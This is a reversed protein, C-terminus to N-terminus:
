RGQGHRQEGQRPRSPQPRHPPTQGAPRSADPRSKGRNRELATRVLDRALVDAQRTVKAAFQPDRLNKALRRRSAEDLKVPTYPVNIKSAIREAAVYAAGRAQKAPVGDAVLKAVAAGYLAKGNLQWPEIKAKQARQESINLTGSQVSYGIPAAANDLVKAGSAEAIDRVSLNPTQPSRADERFLAERAGAPEFAVSKGVHYVTLKETATVTIPDAEPDVKGDKAFPQLDRSFYRVIEVGEADPKLKGGVAEVQEATVFEPRYAEPDQDRMWSRLAQGSLDPIQVAGTRPPDASADLVEVLVPQNVDGDPRHEDCPAHGDAVQRSLNRSVTQALRQEDVTQQRDAVSQDMLHEHARSSMDIAAIKEPEVGPHFHVRYGGDSLETLHSVLPDDVVDWRGNGMSVFDPGQPIPANIDPADGTKLTKKNYPATLMSEPIDMSLSQAQGSPQPEPKSPAATKPDPLDGDDWLRDPDDAGRPERVPPTDSAPTSSSGLDDVPTDTPDQVPATPPVPAEAQKPPADPNEAAKTERQDIREPDDWTKDPDDAGRPEDGGAPPSLTDPEFSRKGNKAFQPFDREGRAAVIQEVGPPRTRLPAKDDAYSGAVSAGAPVRARRAIDAGEQLMASSGVLALPQVRVGPALTAGSGIEASGVIDAGRGIVVGAGICSDDGVQTYSSSAPPPSDGLGAEERSCPGISAGDGVRADQGIAASPGLYCGAGVSAHKALRAGDAFVDDGLRAGKSLVSFNLAVDDGVVAGEALTSSSLYARAGVVAGAEVTCQPGIIAGDGIQAGPYVDATHHVFAGNDLERWEGGEVTAGGLAARLEAEIGARGAERLQDVPPRASDPQDPVAPVDPVHSQSRPPEQVRGETRAAVQGAAWCAAQENPEVGPHFIVGMTGDLRVQVSAIEPDDAVNWSTVGGARTGALTFKDLQGAWPSTDMREAPEIDMMKSTPMVVGGQADLRTQAALPDFHSLAPPRDPVPDDMGPGAPPPSDSGPSDSDALPDQASGVPDPRAETKDDPVPRDPQDAGPPRVNILDPDERGQQRQLREHVQSAAWQAVEPSPLVGGRFRVDYSGDERVTISEVEPDGNAKWVNGSGNSEVTFKAEQRPHVVVPHVFLPAAQGPVPSQQQVRDAHVNLVSDDHRSVPSDAPQRVPPRDPVPDDMGYQPSELVRGERRAQIEGLAWRAAADTPVADAHFYVAVHRNDSPGFIDVHDIEPDDVLHWRQGGTDLDQHLVFRGEQGPAYHLQDFDGEDLAHVQPILADSLLPTGDELWGTVLALNGDSDRMTPLGPPNFNSDPHVAPRAAIPDDMGADAPASPQDPVPQPDPPRGREEESRPDRPEPRPQPQPQDPDPWSWERTDPDYHNQGGLDDYDDIVDDWGQPQEEYRASRIEEIRDLVADPIGAEPVEGTRLQQWTRYFGDPAQGEINLPGRGLSLDPPESGDWARNVFVEAEEGLVADRRAERLREGAPGSDAHRLDNMHARDRRAMVDCLRALSSNEPVPQASVVAAMARPGLAAAVLMPNVDLSMLTAARRPNSAVRQLYAKTAGPGQALNYRLQSRMRARSMPVRVLSRRVLQEARGIGGKAIFRNRFRDWGRYGDGQQPTWKVPPQSVLPVNGFRQHMDDPMARAVAAMVGVPKWGPPPAVLPRRGLSRDILADTAVGFSAEVAEVGERLFSSRVGSRVAAWGASLRRAEAPDTQCLNVYDRSARAAMAELTTVYELKEGETGAGDLGGLNRLARDGALASLLIPDAKEGLVAAMRMPTSLIHEGVRDLAARDTQLALVVKLDTNLASLAGRNTHEFRAAQDAFERTVRTTVM